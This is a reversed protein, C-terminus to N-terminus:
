GGIHTLHSVAYGMVSLSGIIGAGIAMGLAFWDLCRILGIVRAARAQREPPALSASHWVQVPDILMPHRTMVRRPTNDISCLESAYRVMEAKSYGWETEVWGGSTPSWVEVVISPRFDLSTDRM